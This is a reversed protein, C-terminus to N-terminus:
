SGAGHKRPLAGTDRSRLLSEVVQEAVRNEAYAMYRKRLRSLHTKFHPEDLLRDIHTRIVRSDDREREGAIGIGHYLVRATTGGMDTEFGCYVLMPVENVVCEDVTNVGGHTVMVDAHRLVPMQPVWSFAYVREPLRGLEGPPIRDSLSIVLDWNPREAVVGFLGQLFARDTSFASGFAAYILRREGQTRRREFISDLRERDSRAMPRDIRSELVMPGVYYVSVPPRHPFEFELAHLSLVPLRRYTFPILWHGEDTERRLDIGADRALLRLNSLRDCGVRRVLHSWAKLRKRMRLALWLLSIAARSGKWGVGPRILHHPPPLGPRRWISVFSNLLALPVGAGRAAIIHEHMEANILVLDPNLERIARAFGDVAMSSRSRERRDSLNLFRPLLGVRADAELFQEYGSPELPLFDLNHYEVLERDRPLGAFTVRHGDADLRRSLEVSSYVVSPLGCTVVLLRAM